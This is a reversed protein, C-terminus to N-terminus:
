MLSQVDHMHIKEGNKKKIATVCHGLSLGNAAHPKVYFHHCKTKESDFAVQQGYAAIVYKTRNGMNLTDRENSHIDFGIIIICSSVNANFAIWM